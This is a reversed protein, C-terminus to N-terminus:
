YPYLRQDSPPGDNHRIASKSIGIQQHATHFITVVETVRSPFLCDMIGDPNCSPSADVGPEMHHQQEYSEKM